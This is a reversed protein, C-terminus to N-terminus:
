AAVKELEDLCKLLEEFCARKYACHPADDQLGARLTIKEAFRWYEIRERVLERWKAIHEKV